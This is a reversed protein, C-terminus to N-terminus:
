RIISHHIVLGTSEVPRQDEIPELWAAVTAAVELGLHCSPCEIAEHKLADLDSLSANRFHRERPESAYAGLVSFQTTCKPCYILIKNRTQDSM